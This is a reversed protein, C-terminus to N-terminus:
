NRGASTAPEMLEPGQKEGGTIRPLRLLSTSRAQESERGGERGRGDAAEPNGISGSKESPGAQNM